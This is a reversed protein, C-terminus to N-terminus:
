QAVMLFMERQEPAIMAVEAVRAVNRLVNAEILHGHILAIEPVHHVIEPVHHVIEPVHHVIEPVHHVIEPVHVLHARHLLAVAEQQVVLHLDAVRLDVQDIM